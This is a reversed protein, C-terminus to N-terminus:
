HTIVREIWKAGIAFCALLFLLLAIEQVIYVDMTFTLEVMDSTVRPFYNEFNDITIKGFALLGENPLHDSSTLIIMTLIFTVLVSFGGIYRKLQKSFAYIITVVCAFLFYGYLMALMIFLNLNMMQIFTGELLDGLFYFGSSIMVTSGTLAFLPYLLKAGLLTIISSSNHLWLEKSKLSMRMSSIFQIIGLLVLIALSIIIFTIRIEIVSMMLSTFQKMVSPLIYISIISLLLYIVYWAKFDHHEMKLLSIFKKM